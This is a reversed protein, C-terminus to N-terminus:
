FMVACALLGALITALALSLGAPVTAAAGNQAVASTASSLVSRGASTFTGAVSRAVSSASALPATPSATSLSLAPASTSTSLASLVSLASASASHLGSGASASRSASAYASAHSSTTHTTTPRHTTSSPNHPPSASPPASGPAGIPFTSSSCLVTDADHMSLMKVTYGTGPDVEPVAITAANDKLNVTNAIALGGSFSGSPGPFLAVTVPETDSADSDWTITMTGGSSPLKTVQLNSVANAAASFALVAAYLNLSPFMKPRIYRNQSPSPATKSLLLLLFPTSQAPVKVPVMKRRGGQSDFFLSGWAFDSVYLIMSALRLKVLWLGTLEAAPGQESTM